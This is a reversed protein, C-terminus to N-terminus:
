LYRNRNRNLEITLSPLALRLFYYRVAFRTNATLCDGTRCALPLWTLWLAAAFRDSALRASAPLVGTRWALQLWALPLWTLWLTAAFRDSALRASAPLVATRWALQLWALPLWTLWLTAAFRDSALRASAPLVGTRCTPLLAALPLNAAVNFTPRQKTAM